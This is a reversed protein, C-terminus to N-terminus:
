IFTQFRNVYVCLFSIHFTLISQKHFFDLYMFGITEVQRWCRALFDLFDNILM